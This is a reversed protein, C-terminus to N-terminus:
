IECMFRKLKLLGRKKVIVNLQSGKKLDSDTRLKGDEDAPLM